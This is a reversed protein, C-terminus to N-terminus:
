FGRPRQDDSAMEWLEGPASRQTGMRTAIDDFMRIARALEHEARVRIQLDLAARRDAIRQM